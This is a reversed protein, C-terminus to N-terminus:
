EARKFVLQVGHAQASAIPQYRWRSVADLAAPELARDSASRVALNSVSGDANVTFDLVVEGDTRLRRRTRDDIAPAVYDVLQLAARPARAAAAPALEPAPTEAANSPATPVATAARSPRSAPALGGGAVPPAVGFYNDADYPAPPVFAVAEVAAPLGGSVPVLNPVLIDPLTGVSPAPAAKAVAPKGEGSPKPVADPEETKARPKLKGAEIIMRLPNDADRQARTAGEGEQGSAAACFMGLGLCGARLAISNTIGLRGM